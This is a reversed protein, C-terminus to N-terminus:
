RPQMKSEHGLETGQHATQDLALGVMVEHWKKKRKGSKVDGAEDTASSRPPLFIQGLKIYPTTQRSCFIMRAVTSVM